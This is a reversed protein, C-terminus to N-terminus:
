TEVQEISLYVDDSESFCIQEARQCHWCEKIHQEFKRWHYPLPDLLYSIQLAIAIPCLIDESVTLCTEYYSQVCTWCNTVHRQFAKINERDVLLQGNPCLGNRRYKEISM